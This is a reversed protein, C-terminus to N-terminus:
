ASQGPSPPIIGAEGALREVYGLLVAVAAASVTVSGGLAGGQTDTLEGKLYIVASWAWDDPTGLESALGAATNANNLSALRAASHRDNQPFPIVNAM